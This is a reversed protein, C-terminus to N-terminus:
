LESNPVIKAQINSFDLKANELPRIDAIVLKSLELTAIKVIQLSQINPKVLTSFELIREPADTPPIRIMRM